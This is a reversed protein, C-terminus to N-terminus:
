LAELIHLLRATGRVRMLDDNMMEARVATRLRKGDPGLALRDPVLVGADVLRRLMSDRDEMVQADHESVLRARVKRTEWDIALTSGVTIQRRRPFPRGLGSPECRDWSVKFLVERIDRPGDHFYYRKTM